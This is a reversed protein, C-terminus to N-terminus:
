KGLTVNISESQSEVETHTRNTQRGSLGVRQTDVRKNVRVDSPGDDIRITPPMLNNAVLVQQLDALQYELRRITTVQSDGGSKPLLPGSRQGSHGKAMRRARALTKGRETSTKPMLTQERWTSQRSAGNNTSKSAM